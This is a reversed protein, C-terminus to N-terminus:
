FFLLDQSPWHSHATEISQVATDIAHFREPYHSTLPDHCPDPSYKPPQTSSQALKLLKRFANFYSLHGGTLYAPKDNPIFPTERLAPSDLAAFIIAADLSHTIADPALFRSVSSPFSLGGLCYDLYSEETEGRATPTNAVSVEHADAIIRHLVGVTSDDVLIGARPPNDFGTPWLDPHGSIVKHAM